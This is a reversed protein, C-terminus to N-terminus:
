VNFKRNQIKDFKQKYGRLKNNYKMKHKSRELGEVDPTGWKETDLRWDEEEPQYQPDFNAQWTQKDFGSKRYLNGLKGPTGDSGRYNDMQTAGEMKAFTLVTDGIGKLDSNNVFNCFDIKGYGIFHLAFAVDYNKLTYTCWTGDNLEDVGHQTLFGKLQKPTKNVIELFRPINNTEWNKQKLLWNGNENISPSDNRLTIKSINDIRFEPSTNVEGNFENGKAEYLSDDEIMESGDFVFWEKVTDYGGDFRESIEDFGCVFDGEKDMVKANTIAFDFDGGLEEYEPENYNDGHRAKVFQRNYVEYDFEFEYNEGFVYGTGELYRLPQGNDSKIGGQREVSQMFDNYMAEYDPTQETNDSSYMHESIIRRVHEWLEQKTM